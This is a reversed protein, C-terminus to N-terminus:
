GSMLEVGVCCPQFCDFVIEMALVVLGSTECHSMGSLSARSVVNREACRGKLPM